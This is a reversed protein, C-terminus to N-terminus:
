VWGSSSTLSCGTSITLILPYCRRGRATALGVLRRPENYEM